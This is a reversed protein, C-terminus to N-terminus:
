WMRCKDATPNMKSGLPCNYAQAFDYNNTVAGLTRYKDIPHDNLFEKWYDAEEYSSCWLQAFSLFFLQESSLNMGPMQEDNKLLRSLGAKMKTRRPYAMFAERLGGSDAINEDKTLNGNIFRNIEPIMYKQYHEAYCNSRDNFSKFSVNSWWYRSNGDSDYNVGTTDFGHTFEHGLLYGLTGFKVSDPWAKHYVPPHLIGGMVYVANELNYYFANPQMGILIDLPRTTNSIDEAHLGNYRKMFARFKRLNLNNAEYNDEAFTLNRMERILRNILEPDESRGVHVVISSEKRLAEKRTEEDLWDAGRLISRLSDRIIKVMEKVDKRVGEDFYTNSWWYRSNGDSDYNVGTTDFGHTFEHGLLYGLTGFKVSDPWAKHYVPPHLIGGMVYVANELNYYFANPQMGILIDLPRTTNSIDEAHLGNYRKMFARFKRLNLNNAEYNDEAFTLNRMERILRNILEPDESRGVHVVISSEKRLAEQRTEEDLWDAGRLISRLSDRIIKVMEKVDKRVGEDFYTKMYLQDFLFPFTQMIQRKCYDRQYKTDTLEFANLRYLFKLSLYNAMAESHEKSINNLNKYFFLCPMPENTEEDSFNFENGMWAIKYYNRWQAYFETDEALSMNIFAHCQLVNENIQEFVKLIAEFFKFIDNVIQDIREEKVGHIKLLDIMLKQNTLYANSTNQVNDYHMEIDLGIKPLKFFPGFPYETSLAENILGKIGYNSMHASMNLWNFNEAQWEPDIAPFGGMAELAKLYEESKHPPHIQANLCNNYFKQALFFENSYEPALQDISSQLLFNEVIDMLKYRIDILNNRKSPAERDDIVNKWNGCAYEYFDECPDISRNMYSLMKAAYKNRFDIIEDPMANAKDYFEEENKNVENDSINFRLKAGDLSIIHILALLLLSLSRHESLTLMKNIKNKIIKKMYLQDFLFPFTQMIQRKCYDRQYKTDTLEFANLRYLFKLSLYNAMAESHEKSINNLNKYFFLCPMPENTEEDSFNFENGMWAIKYYNRWQAYFETDEALSMNIFAHCQLVNENIQEFVKLIAEFFKFIDNVIQNIREEKVGHIKLLDIMLKQNTLYANSTNQVNDYHMEIDLGIKPLKFFPGFPYETSLAENILGKIGYNSMHASMNLWNFNEAQWEPDIAPFGGMAELAKLYEESKHPPHIQANLCNNYFKQALFFENSYEPALQDISSQLLFNEVIDMLKYRIDILNNRKSPAERDDIVNKWNGCAYEYFDECPDISRNMYSLMKAAYKNRFDIIEDPMANAKDYFEEENKNVENDSINFRLKAGDLSIIHILALLLLSLSRHESLTLM